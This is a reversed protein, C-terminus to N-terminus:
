PCAPPQFASSTARATASRFFFNVIIRLVARDDDAIM